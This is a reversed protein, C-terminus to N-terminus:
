RPATPCRARRGASRAPSSRRPAASATRRPTLPRDPPRRSDQSTTAGLIHAIASRRVAVPRSADAVVALLLAHSAAPPDLTVLARFLADLRRQTPADVSAPAAAVVRQTRVLLRDLLPARDHLALLVSAHGPPPAPQDCADVTADLAADGLRDATAVIMPAGDHLSWARTLLWAFLSRALPAGADGPLTQFRTWAPVDSVLGNSPPPAPPPTATSPPSSPPRRPPPPLRPAPRSLHRMPPPLHLARRRLLTHALPSPLTPRHPLSPPHHSTM